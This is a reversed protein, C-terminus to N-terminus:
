QITEQKDNTKDRQSDQGAMQLRPSTLIGLLDGASIFGTVRADEAENGQSDLFVLTPVGVINFREIVDSVEPSDSRTLDVKIREFSDLARIVNADSYTFQDLEHCPICWDAYFDLIVPKGTNKAEVLKAPTYQTWIVSERPGSLPLAIGIVVAATGLLRKVWRFYVRDDGTRELFGLYAGALVLSVSPWWRLLSPALALMAYFAAIALLM